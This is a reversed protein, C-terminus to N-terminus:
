TVGDGEGNGEDERDESDGRDDGKNRAKRRRRPNQLLINDILRVKKQGGGVGTDELLGPSELPLMIVAGSLVATKVDEMNEIERMDLLNALSIYEVEFRARNEFPLSKQRSLVSVATELVADIIDKRSTKGQKFAAEGAHLALSLVRAVKRRRDGLYVNRSSLALGYEDRAIPVTHVKIPMHFDSVMRRIVALQQIDKQGFYVNDPQVINFLKACVTTVGRFFDPRAAGELVGTLEPDVTVYSLSSPMIECKGGPYMLKTSPHFVATIKGRADQGLLELNLMRMKELDADWTNPYTSLDESVGFQTPNVYISVFVHDNDRAAQRMLSIHGEHLAGMTPVLGLKKGESKVQNRRSRVSQM